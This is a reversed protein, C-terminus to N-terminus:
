FKQFHLACSCSNCADKGCSFNCDGSKLAEEKSSCIGRPPVVLLHILLPLYIILNEERKPSFCHYPPTNGGIRHRSTGGEPPTPGHSTITTLFGVETAVATTPVM